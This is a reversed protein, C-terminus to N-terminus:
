MRRKVFSWLKHTFMTKIIFGRQNPDHSGIMKKKKCDKYEQLVNWISMIYKYFALKKSDSLCTDGGLTIVMRMLISPFSWVFWNKETM